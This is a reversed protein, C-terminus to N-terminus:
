ADFMFPYELLDSPPQSQENNERLAFAWIQLQM